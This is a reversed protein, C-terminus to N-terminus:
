FDVWYGFSSRFALVRCFISGFAMFDGRFRFSSGFGLDRGFISCIANVIGFISGFALCGGLLWIEILFRGLPWSDVFFRGYLRSNVLLWINVWFGFILGFALFRGFFGFITGCDLFRVLPWFDVFFRGLLWSNVYFGFM